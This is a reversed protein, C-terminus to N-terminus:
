RSRCRTDTFLFTDRARIGHLLLCANGFSFSITPYRPSLRRILRPPAHPRAAAAAFPSTIPMLPRLRCREADCRPQQREATEARMCACIERLARADLLMM